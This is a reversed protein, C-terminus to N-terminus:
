KLEEIDAYPSKNFEKDPHLGGWWAGALDSVVFPECMLVSIIDEPDEQVIDHARKFIGETLLKELEEELFLSWRNYFGPMIKRTMNHWHKPSIGKIAWKTWLFNLLSPLFLHSDQSDIELNLMEELKNMKESDDVPFSSIVSAKGSLSIATEMTKVKRPKEYILWTELYGNPIKINSNAIKQALKMLETSMEGNILGYLVHVKTVASFPFISAMLISNM